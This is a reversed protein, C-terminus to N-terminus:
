FTSFLKKTYILVLIPERQLINQFVCKRTANARFIWRRSSNQNSVWILSVEAEADTHPSWRMHLDIWSAADLRVIRFEDFGTKMGTSGHFPSTTVRSQIATFNNLLRLSLALWVLKHNFPKCHQLLTHDYCYPPEAWQWLTMQCCQNNDNKSHSKEDMLLVVLPLWLVQECYPSEM